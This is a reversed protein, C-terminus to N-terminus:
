DQENGRRKEDDDQNREATRRHRNELAREKPDADPVVADHGDAPDRDRRGRPVDEEAVDAVAVEPMRRIKRFEHAHPPVDIQDQLSVRVRLARIGESQDVVAPTPMDAVRKQRRDERVMRVLQLDLSQPENGHHAEPRGREIPPPFDEFPEEVYERAEREEDNERRDNEQNTEPDGHPVAPRDEIDARPDSLLVPAGNGHQFEPRHDPVRIALFRTEPRLAMPRVTREEFHFAVRPPQPAAADEPAPREVLQRLDEIHEGHLHGEDARARMERLLHPFVRIDLPANERHLRPDRPERLHRPPRIQLKLFLHPQIELVDLLPGECEIEPNQPPRHEDYEAPLSRISSEHPPFRWRTDEVGM